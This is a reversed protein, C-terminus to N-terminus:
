SMQVRMGLSTNLGQEGESVSSEEPGGVGQWGNPSVESARISLLWPGQLM